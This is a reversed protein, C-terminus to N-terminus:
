DGGPLADSARVDFDGSAVELVTDFLVQEQDPDMRLTAEIVFRMQPAKGQDADLLRVRPRALRPEFREITDRLAELIRERGSKTAVSIGTSDLLGYEYVSRHLETFGEPAPVMTRRTNLLAEVDREVSKRFARESEERSTPPDARLSLEEDTLRDLLAPQVTREIEPRAV